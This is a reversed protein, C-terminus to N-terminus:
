AVTIKNEIARCLRLANGAALGPTEAATIVFGSAVAASHFEPIIDGPKIFLDMEVLGPCAFQKVSPLQQVTGPPLIIYRRAAGRYYRPRLSPTYGLCLDIAAQIPNFGLALPVLHSNTYGGGLRPSLELVRPGQPSLRLQIYAPGYDIGMAQIAESAVKRILGATNSSGLVPVTTVISSCYPPPTVQRSSIAAVRIQDGWVFAQVGVEEGAIYEELLLEPSTSFRAAWDLAKELESVKQVISVGFSSHNDPPKVVLPLGLTKLGQAAEARSHCTVHRPSPVQCAALAKRIALKNTGHCATDPRIGALSLATAVAAVTRSSRDSGATMVGDIRYTRAAAICAEVDTTSILLPHDAHKLGIAGPDRDIAVVKLGLAKAIKIAAAQIRGAGIVMITKGKYRDANPKLAFM